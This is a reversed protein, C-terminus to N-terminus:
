DTLGIGKEQTQTKPPGAVVVSKVQRNNGAHTDGAYEIEAVM